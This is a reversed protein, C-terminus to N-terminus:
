KYKVDDQVTANDNGRKLGDCGVAVTGGCEGFFFFCNSLGSLTIVTLFILESSLTAIALPKM